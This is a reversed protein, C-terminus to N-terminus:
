PYPPAGNVILAKDSWNCIRNTKNGATVDIWLDYSKPNYQPSSSNYRWPNLKGGLTDHYLLPGDIGAGLVTCIPTTSVNNTIALFQSPKLGPFFSVAGVLGDGGGRSINMFSTLNPNSFSVPLDTAKIKASGDLTQYGPVGLVTANTTGLLEYYLQNLAWNNPGTPPPPQPLPNDPPYYGLKDHYAEIVAIVGKLEALARTRTMSAKVGTMAPFTLAALIVIVSIVVLLEILTFAPSTPRPLDFRSGRVLARPTTRPAHDTAAMGATQSSIVSWQDSIVSELTKM